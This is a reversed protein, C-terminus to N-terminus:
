GKEKIIIENFINIIKKLNVEKSFNNIAFNFGNLGMENLVDKKYSVVMRMTKSLEEVSEPKIVWGSKSVKISFATDSDDDVSALVPKQSFMYAPLKSPISNLSGGKKMPLLLVDAYSQIEPVKGDPVEWFEIVCNHSDKVRKILFDKMSGSGAIVLRCNEIGSVIFADILYEVGALPGINGLYMFTFLDNESRDIKYNHYDIFPKEDQWNSVIQIKESPIGRSSIIFSQMNLSISIIKFANSLNYKDIPLLIKNFLKKGFPLINVLSEPYIDQVHVIIPINYKKAARVVYFQAFLPWTNSYILDIDSHNKKIYNYCIMGFSFTERLRGFISFQPCTFSDQILHRFSYIKNNTVFNYGYPRTPKPSIVTVDNDKSLENALDFSLKASVVPEPPFVASIILINM